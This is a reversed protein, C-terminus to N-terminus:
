FNKDIQETGLGHSLVVELLDGGGPGLPKVIGPPQLSVHSFNFNLWVYIPSLLRKDIGRPDITDLFQFSSKENVKFQQM